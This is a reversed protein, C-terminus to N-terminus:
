NKDFVPEKDALTALLAGMSLGSEIGPWSSYADIIRQDLPRPDSEAPCVIVRDDQKAADIQHPTTYMRVLAWGSELDAPFTPSFWEGGYATCVPVPIQLSDDIYFQSLFWRKM